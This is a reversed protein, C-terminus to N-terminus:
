KMATPLSEDMSWSEGKVSISTESCKEKPARICISKTAFGKSKQCPPEGEARGQQCGCGRQESEMRMRALAVAAFTEENVSENDGAEGGRSM